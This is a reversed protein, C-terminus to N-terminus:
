ANWPHPAAAAPSAGDAAEAPPAAPGRGPPTTPRGAWDACGCRPCRVFRYLLEALPLTILLTLGVVQPRQASSSGTPTVWMVFHLVVLHICFVSYSIHGLHRPLPRSMARSYRSGPDNFVGTVVLLAGILAYLVQKTLAEAETPPALM